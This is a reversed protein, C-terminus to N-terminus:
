LGLCHAVSRMMGILKLNSIHMHTGFHLCADVVAKAAVAYAAGSRHVVAKFHSTLM